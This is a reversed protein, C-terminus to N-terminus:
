EIVVSGDDLRFVAGVPYSGSVPYPESEPYSEGVPYSEDDYYGWLHVEAEPDFKELQEILEAVKM